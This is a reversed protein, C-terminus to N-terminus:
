HPTIGFSAATEDLLDREGSICQYYVESSLKGDYEVDVYLYEEDYPPLDFLSLMTDILQIRDEDGEEYGGAYFVDDVCGAIAQIKLIDTDSPQAAVANLSTCIAFYTFILFRM